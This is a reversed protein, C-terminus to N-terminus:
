FFRCFNIYQYESYIEQLVISLLLLFIVLFSYTCVSTIPGARSCASAQKAQPLVNRWVIHGDVKYQHLGERLLLGHLGEPMAATMARAFPGALRLDQVSQQACTHKELHEINELFSLFAFDLVSLLQVGLFVMFCPFTPMSIFFVGLGSGHM